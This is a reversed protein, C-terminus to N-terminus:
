RERVVRFGLGRRRTDPPASARAAARCDAAVSEFTGGRIVRETGTLPGTPDADRGTISAPSAAYYDQCWEAVNGRLDSIGLPNPALSGVIHLRGDSNDRFWANSRDPPGADAARNGNGGLAAYEWEAESPLRYRKGERQSLRRCFEQADDWSVADAPLSADSAGGGRGEAAWADPAPMIERYQGRTVETRAVLIPRTLTVFHWHEDPRHDPERDMTGMFFGGRPLPSFTMGIRNTFMAVRSRQVELAVVVGATLTLAAACASLRVWRRRRYGASEIAAGPARGASVREVDDALAGASRYRGVPDKAMAKLVVADLWRRRQGGFEPTLTGDSRRAKSPAPPVVSTINRIASALQGGSEYPHRGSLTQYLMVGLSYVDSRADVANVPGTLQEPSAWPLSGVIQGSLTHPHADNGSLTDVLGAALGFDMVHPEGHRDVLVNSPKLDRHVVGLRHAEDVARLVKIWLALLQTGPPRRRALYLDLADGGILPMVLFPTGDAARGRDIVSVVNPYDIRALIAVERDFRARHRLGAFGGGHLVKIAVRRGTTEQVAAYVTAQGGCGIEYEIQFGDIQPRGDEDHLPANGAADIPADLEATTLIRIPVDAATVRPTLPGRAGIAAATRLCTKLEQALHPHAAIVDEDSLNEGRARRQLADALVDSLEGRPRSADGVGGDDSDFHARQVPVM